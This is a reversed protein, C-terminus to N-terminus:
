RNERQMGEMEYQKEGEIGVNYIEEYYYNLTFILKKMQWFFNVFECLGSSSKM